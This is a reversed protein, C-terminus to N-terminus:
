TQRQALRYPRKSSDERRVSLMAYPALTYSPTNNSYQCKLFRRVLGLLLSSLGANSLLSSLLLVSWFFSTHAGNSGWAKIQIHM